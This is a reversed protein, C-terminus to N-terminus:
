SLMRVLSRRSCLLGFRVVRIFMILRLLVRIVMILRSVFLSCRVKRVFCRGVVCFM